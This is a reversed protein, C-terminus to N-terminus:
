HQSKIKALLERAGSAADASGLVRAIEVRIKHGCYPCRKSQQTASSLSARRCRDCEIIKYKKDGPM